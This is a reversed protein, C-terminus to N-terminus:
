YFWEIFKWWWVYGLLAITAIDHVFVVCYGCPVPALFWDLQALNEVWWMPSCLECFANIAEVVDLSSYNSQYSSRFELISKIARALNIVKAVYHANQFFVVLHIVSESHQHPQGAEPTHWPDESPCSQVVKERGHTLSGCRQHVPYSGAM